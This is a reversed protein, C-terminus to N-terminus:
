DIKGLFSPPVYPYKNQVYDWEEDRDMKRYEEVPLAPEDLGLESLMKFKGGM